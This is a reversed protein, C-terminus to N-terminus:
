TLENHAARALLCHRRACISVRLLESVESPGFCYTVGIAACRDFRPPASQALHSRPFAGRAAAVAVAVVFVAGVVCGTVRDATPRIFLCYCYADSQWICGRAAAAAAAGVVAGVYCGTEEGESRKPRM